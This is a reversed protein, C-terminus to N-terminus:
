ESFFWDKGKWWKSWPSREQHYEIVGINLGVKLKWVDLGM